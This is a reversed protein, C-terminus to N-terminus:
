FCACLQFRHLASICFKVNRVSIITFLRHISEFSKRFNFQKLCYVSDILELILNSHSPFFDKYFVSAIHSQFTIVYFRRM